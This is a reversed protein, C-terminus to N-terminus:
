LLGMIPDATYIHNPRDADDHWAATKPIGLTHYITAAMNDPTQPDAAPYGAHADSSGVVTGGKTGGGAFFVTQVAGWHNIFRPQWIRPSNVILTAIRRGITL